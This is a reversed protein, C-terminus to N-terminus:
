NGRKRQWAIGGIGAAAVGLVAPFVLMWPGPGNEDARVRPHTEAADAGITQSERLYGAGTDPIPTARAVEVVFPWSITGSREPNGLPSVFPTDIDLGDFVGNGNVDEALSVWAVEGALVPRALAVPPIAGMALVLPSKGLLAVPGDETGDHVVMFAPAPAQLHHVILQSEGAIPPQVKLLPTRAEIVSPRVEAPEVVIAIRMAPHIICGFKGSEQMEFSASQGPELRGTTAFRLGIDSQVEHAVSDGNTWTVTVPAKPRPYELAGPPEVVFEGNAIKVMIATDAQGQGVAGFLSWGLILSLIIWRM